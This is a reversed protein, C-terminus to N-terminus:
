HSRIAERLKAAATELAAAIEEVDSPRRAKAAAQELAELDLFPQIAKRVKPFTLGAATNGTSPQETEIGLLEDRVKALAEPSTSGSATAKEWVARIQEADGAKALAARQRFSLETVKPLALYVPVGEMLRYAHMRSIELHKELYDTFTAHGLQEYLEKDERLAMLAQGAALILYRDGRMQASAHAAQAAQVIHEYHARKEEPGADDAAPQFQPGDPVDFAAKPKDVVRGDIPEDKAAAPGVGRDLKIDDEVEPLPRRIM